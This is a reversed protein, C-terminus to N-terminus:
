FYSPRGGVGVSYGTAEGCVDKADTDGSGTDGRIIDGVALALGEM